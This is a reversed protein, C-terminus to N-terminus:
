KVIVVATNVKRCGVSTIYASITPPNRHGSLFSLQVNGENSYLLLFCSFVVIVARATTM